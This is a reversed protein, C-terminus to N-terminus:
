WGQFRAPRREVYSRIGEAADQTGVALEQAYAEHDFGGQRDVEFSRNTLAKTLAIARTPGAALREALERASALLEGGPVVRNVLGMELAKAAPLDDGLFMLEKARQLGVLRPLLWTAGADPVLGRRVFVSVFRAEQAAVVLDCALAMQMGAGAAVGNVAAVVPKECDLIAGVLRQWGERLLRAADGVAREPAGPPRAPGPGPPTARFDAGTCFSREGAGTIVVARVTMDDSVAGLTETIRDRMQATVANGAEPRNLVLWTVPGEARVM